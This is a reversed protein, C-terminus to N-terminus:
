HYQELDVRHVESDEFEFTICWPGNVHVSYRPPRDGRLRHFDFGPLNVDSSKTAADLADLVLLARIQLDARVRRSRGTAFLERLGKHRWSRIM